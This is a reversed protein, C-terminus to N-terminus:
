RRRNPELQLKQQEQSRQPTGHELSRPQSSVLSRIFYATSPQAQLIAISSRHIDQLHLEQSMGARLVRSLVPMHLKVDRGLKGQRSAAWRTVLSPLSIDKTKQRPLYTVAKADSQPTGLYSTHNDCEDRPRTPTSESGKTVGEM